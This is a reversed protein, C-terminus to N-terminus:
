GNDNSSCIFSYIVLPLFSLSVCGGITPYWSIAYISAIIWWWLIKIPNNKVKESYLIIMMVFVGHWRDFYPGAANACLISLVFSFLEGKIFTMILISVIITLLIQSVSVAAPLTSYEGKFFIYNTLSRFYDFFIGGHPPIYDYLPLSGYRLLQHLPVTMEGYHYYDTMLSGNPLRYAFFASLSIISSVLLLKNNGTNKKIRNYFIYLNYLILAVAVLLCTYKLIESYYQAVIEGRYIYRFKYFTLFLAPLFIQSLILLTDLTNKKIIGISLLKVAFLIALMIIIFVYNNTLRFITLGKKTIINLVIFGAIVNFYAFVSLLCIKRFINSINVECQKKLLHYILYLFGFVLVVKFPIVKSIAFVTVCIIGFSKLFIWPYDKKEYNVINISDNKRVIFNLALPTLILLLLYTSIYIYFLTLDGPKNYGSWTTAGAILDSYVPLKQSIGPYFLYAVFLPLLTSIIISLYLVTTNKSAIYKKITNLRGIVTRIM